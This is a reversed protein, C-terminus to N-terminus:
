YFCFFLLLNLLPPSPAYRPNVTPIGGSELRYSGLWKLKSDVDADCIDFCVVVLALFGCRLPVEVVFVVVLIQRGNTKGMAVVALHTSIEGIEVVLPM